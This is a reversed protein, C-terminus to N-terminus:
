KQSTEIKQAKQTQDDDCDPIEISSVKVMKQNKSNCCAKEAMGGATTKRIVRCVCNPECGRCEFVVRKM